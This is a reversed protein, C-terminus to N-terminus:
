CPLQMFLSVYLGGFILCHTMWMVRCMSASRWAAKLVVRISQPPYTHHIAMPWLTIGCNCIMWGDDYQKVTLTMPFLLQSWTLPMFGPCTAKPNHSSVLTGMTFRRLCLSCASEMCFLSSDVPLKLGLVKRNQSLLALWKMEVGMVLKLHLWVFCNGKNCGTSELKWISPGGVLKCIKERWREPHHRFYITVM